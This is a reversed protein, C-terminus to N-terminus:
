VTIPSISRSTTSQPKRLLTGFARVTRRKISSAFQRLKQLSVEVFRTKVRSNSAKARPAEQPDVQPSSSSIQPSPFPTHYSRPTRSTRASPISPQDIAIQDISDRDLTQQFLPQSLPRHAASPNSRKTQARTRASLGVAPFSRHRKRRERYGRAFLAPSVILRRVERMSLPPDLDAEVPTWRRPRELSRGCRANQGYVITEALPRDIDIDVYSPM